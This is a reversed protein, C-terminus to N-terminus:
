WAEGIALHLQLRNTLKRLFGGAGEQPDYRKATQLHVLHLVSDAGMVQTVVPLEEALSPRIGIDIRVPGIPSGYRVGIGPSIGTRDGPPLNLRAGYVSGADVFVAGTITPTLPFRYEISGEILTNGGLPRPVFESSAVFNPDCTGDAITATSCLAATTDASTTLKAPDITLVRPGLQNESYGRVSRAGGGYFRKRPHLVGLDSAEVGVAGATSELANVWGARAHVALVSRGRPFYKNYEAEIRNYRFDSATFASAHELSLRATYGRTPALPDDAREAQALIAIPSLQHTGRLADIMRLACVGFNICFYLDGSEVRTNEFQYTASIPIQPAYHWTFTANAGYGRDIVIGPVSRRHSSVGFGLSARAQLVFPEVLEAGIEWTPELYIRDVEDSVGLPVASGFLRTGYLQQAFLNGVAGRIDLRRAGGLWNYRTYRGEAQAFETSNFGVGIRYAQMGAERVTVNVLKASDTTAPVEVLTQRFIQTEYLRRQAATMDRRRYLDGPKLALLRAMTNDSVNENGKIIVTDITTRHAPDITVLISATHSAPDTRITDAVLADAYGLDWLTGRLRIKASDLKNLDLPAGEGPILSQRIAKSSLLSDTQVVNRVAVTTLPGETIDFTVRVGEGDPTVTSRVQAQRYGARFYIVRIRLEDRPLEKRDLYHKEVFYDADSILCLPKLLLGRCRTAQTEISDRLVGRSLGNTGNFVVAEVRPSEQEAPTAQASLERASCILAALLLAFTLAYRGRALRM